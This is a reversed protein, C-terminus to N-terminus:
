KGILLDALAAIFAVGVIYPFVTWAEHMYCWLEGVAVLITFRTIM